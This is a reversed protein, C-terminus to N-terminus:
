YKYTAIYNTCYYDILIYEYLLRIFWLNRGICGPAWSYALMTAGWNKAKYSAYYYSNEMMKLMQEAASFQDFLEEHTQQHDQTSTPEKPSMTFRITGNHQSPHDSNNAPHTEPYDAVVPVAPSQSCQSSLSRAYSASSSATNSVSKKSIQILTRKLAVSAIM